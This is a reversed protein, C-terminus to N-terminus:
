HLRASRCLALLTRSVIAGDLDPHQRTQLVAACIREEATLLAETDWAKLQSALAYRRKFFIGFRPSNVVSEVSLGQSVQVSMAQLKTIHQLALSLSSRGGSLSATFRDTELLNGGFVADVLDDGSADWTDGCIATVDDLEITAQGHCYTILKQTESEGVAREFSIFESLKQMADDAILLGAATIQRHLRARLERPSEEYLAVSACHPSAECLKRLKSTKALGESDIIIPNGSTGGALIPELMKAIADSADAIWVVQNGGFMPVSAFAEYLRETSSTVQQETLRVTNLGDDASGTIKKLTQKCLEYVASRDGGHILVAMPASRGHAFLGVLESPKVVSM